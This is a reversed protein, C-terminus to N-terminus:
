RCKQLPISNVLAEMSKRSRQRQDEKKGQCRVIINISIYFLKVKTAIICFLLYQHEVVRVSQQGCSRKREVCLQTCSHIYRGEEYDSIYHHLQVFCIWLSIVLCRDFPTKTGLSTQLLQDIYWVWSILQSMLGVWSSNGLDHPPSPQGYRWLLQWLYNRLCIM